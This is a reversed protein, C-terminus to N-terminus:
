QNRDSQAVTLTGLGTMERSGSLIPKSSNDLVTYAKSTKGRSLFDTYHGEESLLFPPLRPSGCAMSGRETKHVIASAQAATPRENGILSYMHLQFDREEWARRPM